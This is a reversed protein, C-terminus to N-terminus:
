RIAWPRLCNGVSCGWEYLAKAMQVNTWPDYRNSWPLGRADLYARTIINIQLLGHDNTRSVVGPKCNSERYMLYSFTSVPLGAQTLLYEYQPCRGVTTGGGGGTSPATLGLARATIPGVIGDVKLGRARQFGMIASTTKPGRIGDIPGPNFGVSLLKQQIAKVSYATLAVAPPADTASAPILAPFAVVGLTVAIAFLVKRV